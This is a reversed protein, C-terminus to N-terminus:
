QPTDLGTDKALAERALAADREAQEALRKEIASRAELDKLEEETDYDPVVVVAFDFIDTNPDDVVVFTGPPIQAKMADQISAFIGASLLAQVLATLEAAKIEPNIAKVKSTQYVLSSVNDRYLLTREREAM